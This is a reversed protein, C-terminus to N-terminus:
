LNCFCAILLYILAIDNNEHDGKTETNGRKRRIPTIHIALTLLLRSILSAMDRMREYARAHHRYRCTQRFPHKRDSPVTHGM